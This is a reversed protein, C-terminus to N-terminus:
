RPLGATESRAVAETIPERGQNLELIRRGPSNAHILATLTTAVDERSIQEHLEAPGIYIQIGDAFAEGNNRRTLGSVKVEQEGLNRALLRGIRGTLGIIFVNM